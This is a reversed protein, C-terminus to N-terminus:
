KALEIGVKRYKKMAARAVAMTAEYNPDETSSENVLRAKKTSTFYGCVFKESPICSQVTVRIRAFTQRISDSKIKVRM